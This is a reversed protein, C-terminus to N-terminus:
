KRRKLFVAIASLSVVTVGIVAVTQINIPISFTLRSAIDDRLVISPDHLLSGGDFNPYAFFLLLGEGNTWYSAGVDVSQKSSDPLTMVAKDLWKYFAMTENTSAEEFSLGQVDDSEYDEDEDVEDFEEGLEDTDDWEDESEYEHDDDDEHMRFRHNRSEDSAIDEQLFNLIAIKSDNRLFPFNGIEIDIKLEVGGTVTYNAKVGEDDEVTGSYNELYLHAYFQLNMEEYQTLNLDGDEEESYSDDDDDDEDDFDDNSYGPLWDEYWDDDWDEGTLGAKIYTAYVETTHGLEDTVSGTQISWSFAELPVFAITENAQFVGDGNTDNFEVVALYSVRFRSQTGNADGTYWFQYSPEESDLMVTMVDTQIWATGDDDRDIEPEHEEEYEDQEETEDDDDDDTQAGVFVVSTLLLLVMVLMLKKELHSPRKM